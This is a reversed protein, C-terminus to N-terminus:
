AVKKRSIAKKASPLRRARLPMADINRLVENIRATNAV